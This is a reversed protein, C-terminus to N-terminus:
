ANSQRDCVKTLVTLEEPKFVCEHVPTYAVCLTRRISVRSNQCLSAGSCVKQYM